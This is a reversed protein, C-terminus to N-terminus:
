ASKVLAPTRDDDSSDPKEPSTTKLGFKAALRGIATDFSFHEAVTHRGAAGLLNRKQPDVILERLIATLCDPDNAPVLRGNIGEKILEPVGSIESAVCALGQSQAELLVNPLGDRDGDGAIRNALVFLDSSRYHELVKEQPLSGLWDIRSNIGAADAQRKLQKLLGGGGIHVWRWSLDKPLAALAAILIDHGKKEVARGVTLLRVPDDMQSGDRNARAGAPETFRTLDLGHYVLALSETNDSRARLYDYASKSCTVAWRCDALKERLECDPSTWIDKAHASVSWGIGRMIAAYRTVSAPTHIFHAHLQDVDDPLEAALVAAQGFRRIRNPTPDRRLDRLWVRRAQGWGPLRAATRIGRWVRRPEQHLYEPLYCVPAKIESHVPHTASDTPHRLSVLRIDLGARELGLIEQAIFTESLRPYGKLVFAVAGAM